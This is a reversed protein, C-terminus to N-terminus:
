QPQPIESPAESSVMATLRAVYEVAADPQQAMQNSPPEKPHLPVADGENVVLILQIEVEEQEWELEM